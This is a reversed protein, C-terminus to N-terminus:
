GQRPREFRQVTPALQGLDVHVKDSCNLKLWTDMTGGQAPVGDACFTYAVAATARRAIKTNRAFMGQVGFSQPEQSVRAGREIADAVDKLTDRGIKESFLRHYYTATSGASRFPGVFRGVVFPAPLYLELGSSWGNLFAVVALHDAWAAGGSVLVDLGDMRARLDELMALWLAQSMPRTKDRGATGIVALRRGVRDTSQSNFSM